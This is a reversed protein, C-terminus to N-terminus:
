AHGAARIEEVYEMFGLQILSSHIPVRRKSGENKLSQDEGEDTINLFPIDESVGIDKIALQGAEERRCVQFLCLLPLWYNAANTRRQQMFAQSGLVALLEADTFPRRKTAQKKAQQKNPALGRVPNFGDAVFGQQEAWKFLGSLSSLHKICTALSLGRTQLMHEKYTRCDAKTLSGIPRDGGVVEVFRELESKVQSDTRPARKNEQFYLKIVETFPKSTTVTKVQSLSATVHARPALRETYNGGWRAQDIRLVDQKAVLLRRCLRKFEESDHDLLPVGAATLLADAEKEILQYDSGLLACEVEQRQDALVDTVNDRYEDSIPGNLARWDEAEDLEANMWRTVLEERQENTM